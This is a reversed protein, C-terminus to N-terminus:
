LRGSQWSLYRRSLEIHWNQRDLKKFVKEDYYLQNQKYPFNKNQHFVFRWYLYVFNVGQVWGDIAWNASRSVTSAWCNDRPWQNSDPEVSVKKLISIEGM